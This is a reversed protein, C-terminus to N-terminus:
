NRKIPGEVEDEITKKAEQIEEQIEKVPNVDDVQSMIERKIDDTAEKMTRMGKGLGRAIEPIKDPGFILVAILIIVAIEGFSM